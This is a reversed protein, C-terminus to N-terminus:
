ELRSRMKTKFVTDSLAPGDDIPKVATGIPTANPQPSFPIRPTSASNSEPSTCGSGDHLRPWFWEFGTWVPPGTKGPPRPPPAPIRYPDTESGPPLDKLIKPEGDDTKTKDDEKPETLLPPPRAIAVAATAAAARRAQEAKYVDLLSEAPGFVADAVVSIAATALVLTVVPAAKPGYTNAIRAAADLLERSGSRMVDTERGDPDIYRLSNNLSFGYINAKRPEVWASDPSFRFLPDGQTWGILTKDYYRAGYYALSSLDDEYKDNSRRKHVAVGQNAGADTSELREGFPAYSFSANITGSQAVAAITNSALGHFQFETTTATNSTREVRAVPTGLSLHSYIRTIAGAGDYHAQVDGIFWVMETRAGAADKKIVAVRQGDTDYWYEESGTISGSVKRVVRRLQDEGDYTYEFLESTAPYSRTLQNGAADYTYSAYTAGGSVNTLSTVQEPDTGAYNYNVNRALRPDAGAPTPSITRTQTARTLRGATGYQYTAGFYSSTNTSVGTIQHRRDYAFTFTRSTSGLHHQLTKVDDNGFYTLQQRVIQAPSINRQVTQNTVRGLTDYSWNSEVFTMPGGTLDTRRKTVLGAVNRTQVGIDQSTPSIMQIKSPLNRADYRYLWLTENSGGMFDLSRGYKLAGNVYYGQMWTRTLAPYGAFGHSQQTITRRGQGDHYMDIGWETNSGAPGHARWYHLTGIYGVDYTFVETNSVFLARDPDSLTRKGIVKSVVRDLDDYAKSTTFHIDTLPGTSGPVQESTMNGNRDYGYRWTRTARTIKTRRGAFDHELTTTLSQPDVIQTIANDPGYSYTTTAFTSAGTKEKVQVLRGFRDNITQTEAIAATTESSAVVERTTATPGDYIMDVGSPDAPNDPRRISTPRGLTDFAYGYGVLTADNLAADPLYVKDLTGDAPRYEYRTVHNAPASGQAFLTVELRRGHGDFETKEQRWVNTDEDVRLYNTTSAPETTTAADVYTNTEAQTLIFAFGDNSITEWREVMRGLGDVKIKHQEKEPHLADVLCGPQGISCTRQNPGQTMLLTGTGYEYVSDTQHGAENVEMAVFLKRTDYTLERADGGTAYQVPKRRRLENGTTLDYERHTTACTLSAITCNGLDGTADFWVTEIEAVRFSADWGTESQAFLQLSGAVQHKQTTKRPRLRFTSADSFLAYTTATERDGDAATPSAGLRSSTGQWLLPTPDVTSTSSLATLTTKTHTRTDTNGRCAAESQDNRCLWHDVATAHFTHITGFLTREEWTTDDITHVNTGASPKVIKTVRRGSWDTAYSFREITVAGTPSTTHVEDFGRFAFRNAFSADADKGVHPRLYAYTTTTNTNSFTDTSNVSQVVWGTTPSSKGFEPQQTVAPGNMSSYAITTTAGRQNNISVMLRRPATNTVSRLYMQGASSLEVDEKVGDGNLDIYDQTTAWWKTTGLCSNTDNSDVQIRHFGGGQGLNTSSSTTFLGGANYRVGLNGANNTLLDARGDSDLDVMRRDDTRFGRCVYYQPHGTTDALLVSPAGDPGPRDISTGSTQFAVGDNFRLNVVSGTGVWHDALGDGNFDELGEVAFPAPVQNPPYDTRALFSSTTTGFTFPTTIVGPKFVGTGDNRYVKWSSSDHRVADAFGDGDIDVTGQYQGVPSSTVSSEGNTTELAIPQYMIQTPLPGWTDHTTGSGGPRAEGFVGNGHNKYVFWPFMGGCMTYPEFQWNGSNATYPTSPCPPLGGFISPEQPAGPQNGWQLDYSVVGGTVPSGVLDPLQDGDMDMWRWAFHTDGQNNTKIGCDSNTSSACWGKPPNTGLQQPCAQGSPPCITLFSPSSNRYASRQYNLACRESTGTSANAGAYPGGDWPTPPQPDNDTAWKLTPVDIYGASAFQNSGAFAPGRNRYWHARCRTTQGNEIVPESVIRDVLGDADLDLMMAEVTPWADASPRYGWGLNYNAVGIGSASWPVAPSTAAGYNVSADGYGFTVAPLVVQASDIGVASEQISELARYPAHAASCSATASSYGLTITRQHEWSTQPNPIGSGAFASPAYAVSRIELLQSAGTVIKPGSRYSSQSGVAIGNCSPPSSAYTFLMAAFPDLGAVPNQGWVIAKIRCEGSVGQEYYFDIQNSFADEVRTVPAYGGSVITCGSTRVDKHGFYYVTGDPSLAKWWFDGTPYYQYRLWSSDNQARFPTTGAPSPETVALLPRNGSLSSQYRKLPPLSATGWLRGGSTDETILPLGSVTWGAALTGYIPAQSSYQLSVSPQMGQRGPPAGIPYSYTFAGTNTSVGSEGDAIGSTASPADTIAPAATTFIEGPSSHAPRMTGVIVVATLAALGRSFATRWSSPRKMM